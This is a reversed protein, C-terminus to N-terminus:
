GGIKHKFGADDSEGIHTFGGKEVGEGTGALGLGRIVREARDVRIDADHDYGILARVDQLGDRFGIDDHRGRDFKNIDGSEDGAGAFTFAQAVLKEGGDALDVGDHLDDAAKLIGIDDMGHAANIRHTVDLHDRGFEHEGVQLRDGLAHALRLFIRLRAVLFGDNLQREELFEGRVQIGALGGVGEGGRGLFHGHHFEELQQGRLGHEKGAVDGLGVEGGGFLIEEHLFDRLIDAGM